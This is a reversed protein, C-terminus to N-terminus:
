SIIQNFLQYDDDNSEIDGHPEFGLPNTTSFNPCLGANLQHHHQENNETSCGKITPNSCAEQQSLAHLKSDAFDAASPSTSHASSPDATSNLTLCSKQFSAESTDLPKLNPNPNAVAQPSSRSNFSSNRQILPSNVSGLVPPAISTPQDPSIVSPLKSLLAQLSSMSPILPLTTISRQPSNWGLNVAKNPSLCSGGYKIFQDPPRKMGVLQPHDKTPSLNKRNMMPLREYHEGNEWINDHSPPPVVKPKRLEFSLPPHVAFVGPISQLYNFKRQLFIVFNLDEVIKHLSGLQIVGERVAVVAITQIGSKFQAEWTRPHPDLSGHWSSLFNIDNEPPEKYVWKHSNDAAVKGMLRNLSLDSDKEMITFKMLCRSFFRQNSLNGGWRSKQEQKVPPAATLFLTQQEPVAHSIVTVM